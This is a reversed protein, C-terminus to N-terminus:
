GILALVAGEEVPDGEKVVVATITGRVPAEVPMEMKMSELVIVTDSPEEPSGVPGLAPRALAVALTGVMAMRLGVLAAEKLRLGRPQGARGTGLFMMAGWEVRRCRARGLLHLALPLAAGSIGALMTLNQFM